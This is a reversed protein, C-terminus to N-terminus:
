VDVIWMTDIWNMEDENRKKISRKEMWNSQISEKWKDIKFSSNFTKRYPVFLELWKKGREDTTRKM